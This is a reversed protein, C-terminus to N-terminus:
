KVESSPKRIKKEPPHNIAVLVFALFALFAALM